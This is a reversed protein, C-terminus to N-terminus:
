ECLLHRTAGGPLKNLATPSQPAPQMAPDYCTYPMPATPLKAYNAAVDGPALGAPETNGL